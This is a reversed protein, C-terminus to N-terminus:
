FMFLGLLMFGIFFIVGYIILMWRINNFSHNNSSLREQDKQIKNGEKEREEITANVDKGVSLTVFFAVVCVLAGIITLFIYLDLGEGKM